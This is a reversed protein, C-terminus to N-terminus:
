SSSSIIKIQEAIRQSAAGDGYPNKSSAMADYFDKNELLFMMNEEISSSNTGVLKLTGAEMGEQRETHNRMVLVPKNLSPAEEQIGGSDTLIFYCKSMLYMFSLYDVPDILYINKKDGLYNKVVDRINPNLHVPYIFNIHPFKISINKIAECINRFGDGFSERRHGTILVFKSDLDLNKFSARISTKKENTLLENKALFVSDIVTNGTVFIKENQINEDLLNKRNLETPAFNYDALASVIKRNAEEPWPSKINGTRLGAEIHGVKINNYFCCIAAAATTNTDGHVLALDPKFSDLIPKLNLILHGSLGSLDQNKKMLDLDFDPAIGFVELVQDLMGRHQATVCVRQEFYNDNNLANVLPAM